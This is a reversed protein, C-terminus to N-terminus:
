YTIINYTKTQVYRNVYGAFEYADYSLAAPVNITFNYLTVSGESQKYVSFPNPNTEGQKYISKPEPDTETQKYIYIQGGSINNETIYIGRAIEDFKDNLCAELSLHQGTYALYDDIASITTYFDDNITQIPTVCSKLFDVLWTFRYFWATLNNVVSSFTVQYKSLSIM